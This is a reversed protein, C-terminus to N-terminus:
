PRVAVRRLHRTPLHADTPHDRSRADPEVDDDTRAILLCLVRIIVRRKHDDSLDAFAHLRGPRHPVEPGTLVLEEDPAAVRDRELLHTLVLEMQQNDLDEEVMASVVAVIDDSGRARDVLSRVVDDVTTLDSRANSTNDSTAEPEARAPEARRRSRAVPVVAGLGAMVVLVVVV